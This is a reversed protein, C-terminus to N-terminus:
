RIKLNIQHHVTVAAVGEVKTVRVPSSPCLLNTPTVFCYVPTKYPRNLEDYCLELSGTPSSM